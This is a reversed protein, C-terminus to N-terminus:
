FMDDPNMSAFWPMPFVVPAGSVQSIMMIVNSAMKRHPVFSGSNEDGVTAGSSSDDLLLADDDSRTALLLYAKSQRKGEAIKKVLGTNEDVEDKPTIRFMNPFDSWDAVIADKSGFSTAQDAVYTCKVHCGTVQLNASIDFDLYVMQGPKWEFGSCLGSIAVAGGAGTEYTFTKFVTGSSVMWKKADGSATGTYAVVDFRKYSQASSTGVSNILYSRM